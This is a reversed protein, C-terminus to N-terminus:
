PTAMIATLGGTPTMPRKFLMGEAEAYMGKLERETEEPPVGGEVGVREITKSLAVVDDIFAGMEKVGKGRMAAFRAIAAHRSEGALGSNMASIIRQLLAGRDEVFVPPPSDPSYALDLARLLLETVTMPGISSERKIAALKRLTCYTTTSDATHTSIALATLFAHSAATWQSLHNHSLGWLFTTHLLTPFHPLSAAPASTSITSPLLTHVYEVHAITEAHARLAFTHKALLVHMPLELTTDCHQRALNLTSLLHSLTSHPNSRTLHLQLMSPYALFLKASIRPLPTKYPPPNLLATPIWPYIQLFPRLPSCAVAARVEQYIEGLGHKLRERMCATFRDTLPAQVAVSQLRIFDQAIHGWEAEDEEKKKKRPDRFETLLGVWPKRFRLGDVMGEQVVVSKQVACQEELIALEDLCSANEEVLELLGSSVEVQKKFAGIADTDAYYECLWTSAHAAVLLVREDVNRMGGDGGVEEARELLKKCMEAILESKERSNQMAAVAAYRAFAHVPFEEFVKAPVSHMLPITMASLFNAEECELEDLVDMYSEAPNQSWAFSRQSYYDLFARMVLSYEVDYMSTAREKENAVTQQLFLTLLPHVHYTESEADESLFGMSLLDRIIYSYRSLLGTSSLISKVRQMEHTSPPRKFLLLQMTSADATTPLAKHYLLCHLYPDLDKPLRSYFPALCLLLQKSDKDLRSLM